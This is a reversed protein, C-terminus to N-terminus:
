RWARAARDANVVGALTDRMSPSSWRRADAGFMLRVREVAAGADVDLAATAGLAQGGDARRHERAGAGAAREQHRFVAQRDARDAEAIEVLHELEVVLLGALDFHKRPGPEAINPALATCPM